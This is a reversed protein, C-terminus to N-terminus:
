KKNDKLPEEFYDSYSDSEGYSSEVDSFFDSSGSERQEHKWAKKKEGMFSDKKYKRKHSM